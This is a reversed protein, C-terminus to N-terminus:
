FSHGGGSGGSSAGGGGGSTGSGGSSSSKTYKHHYLEQNSYITIDPTQTSTTKSEDIQTKGRTLLIACYVGGSALVIGILINCIYKMPTTIARGSISSYIQNMGTLCCKHYDGVSAYTYINDTIMTGVSNSIYKESSGYAFVYIERNYMDICLVIGNSGLNNIISDKAKSRTSASDTDSTTYLLINQKKAIKDMVLKIEAKEEATLLSAEDLIVSKYPTMNNTTGNDEDAKVIMRQMLVSALVIFVILCLYFPLSMNKNQIHM